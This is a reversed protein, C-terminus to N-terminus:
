KYIENIIIEATNQSFHIGDNWYYNEQNISKNLYVPYSYDIVKVNNNELSKIFEVWKKYILNKVFNGKFFDHFEPHWPPIIIILEKNNKKIENVIEFYFKKTNENLKKIDNYAKHNMAIRKVRSSLPETKKNEIEIMSETTSGDDFYHSKYNGKKYQRYDKFTKFAKKITLRSIYDYIRDYIKPPEILKKLNDPLYEMMENQYYLNNEIFLNNFEFLDAVYIIRKLNPQTEIATKILIYRAPVSAGASSASFASVGFKESINYPIFVESTSSGIIIDTFRNQNKLLNFKKYLGNRDSIFNIKWPYNLNRDPDIWTVFLIVAALGAFFSIFFTLIFKNSNM